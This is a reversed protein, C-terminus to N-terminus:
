VLPVGTIWVHGWKLLGYYVALGVVIVAADGVLSGARDGLPGQAARKKVSIRDYVAYALFSGFLLLSAADGNVLLHAFAWIKTAALMPHGVATRIRSPVYAAVLLVIAPLMLLFVFHRLWLPSTWLVPNKGPMVQLKHYGYAILGLGVFSVLSFLGKYAGEGLRSIMSRRLDPMTPVMHIAFFVVLGIILLLM